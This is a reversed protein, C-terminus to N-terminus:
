DAATRKSASKNKYLAIDAERVFSEIDQDQRYSSVGCSITIKGISSKGVGVFQHNSVVNILKNSIHEAKEKSTEPLLIAFEDGGYRCPIDTKRISGRLLEGLKQLIKDGTQHGYTDNYFKFKDVDIMILSLGHKYREARNLEEVMTTEFKRRNYLSTLEDIIAQSSLERNYVTMDESYQKLKGVKEILESSLSNFANRLVEIENENVSETSTELISSSKVKIEKTLTELSGISRSILFFSLVSIFLMAAFGSTFKDILSNIQEPMLLPIMYQNIMFAMILLPLMSSLMFFALFTKRSPEEFLSVFFTM